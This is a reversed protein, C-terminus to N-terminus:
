PSCSCIWNSTGGRLFYRENEFQAMEAGELRVVDPRWKRLSQQLAARFALPGGARAVLVVEACRALLECPPPELRETFAVLVSGSEPAVDLSAAVLTVKKGTAANGPMVAIQGGSLALIMEEPYGAPEPAGGELAIRWAERLAGLAAPLRGARLRLRDLAQRWLREFVAQGAAARAVFKLYNRELIEDLQEETFYKSATARHRHELRAGAVYVTAWGRQWARYGIDLDEVYVPEYAEDLSGLERLKAADYLSCGGSGYLVWTLDEGELPEDCRIPFDDPEPQAYVAKGTEERRVGKPFFIQATACFLDPVRGFAETLALFFGPEVIMDNNLLCVRSYRALAVGRNVARAFSLPTESVASEIRPWESALWGASGDNSGNDVVIIESDFPELERVIGPLQAALLDRGNRSPIVVSIGPDTERPPWPHVTRRRPRLVGAARAAGYWWSIETERKL